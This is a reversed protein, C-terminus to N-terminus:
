DQMNPGTRAGSRKPGIKIQPALIPTPLITATGRACELFAKLRKEKNVSLSKSQDFCSQLRHWERAVSDDVQHHELILQERLPPPDLYGILDLM